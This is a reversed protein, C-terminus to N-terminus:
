PGAAPGLRGAFQWAIFLATGAAGTAPVWAPVAFGRYTEAARRKIRWLSLNVLVFVLLICYSTARALDELPFWLAMLLVLAAVLGTAHVPTRTVPHVRALWSPAWGRSGMGYCVRSVMIIQILAGNIVAILSLVTILVPSTGRAQAYLFALPADAAALRAPTTASVAVLAVACYLLTSLGLTLLIARPLNRQPDQVEEAINVMDEFGLFAYFALFAGAMLGHHALGSMPSAQLALTHLLTAGDPRAVWLILLLGAIEAVTMLSAVTVSQTIGWLALAGLASVLLAIALPEPVAVLVQLYGTFGRAIAAASVIGALSILIGTLRALARRGLGQQVYMVEGASYPFRASLEAYSLATFAALLSALLFALPTQYGAHAAVTGILVYIGAGIINGLGYYTVRALTLSRRLPPQPTPASPHDTDPM